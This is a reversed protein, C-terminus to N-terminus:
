PEHEVKKESPELPVLALKWGLAALVRALDRGNPEREGRNWRSLTTWHLEAKTALETQSVHPSRELALRYLATLPSPDTAM